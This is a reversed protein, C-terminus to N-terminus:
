GHSHSNEMKGWYERNILNQFLNGVPTVYNYEVLRKIKCSGVTFFSIGWPVVWWTCTNRWINGMKSNTKGTQRWTTVKESWKEAAEVFVPCGRSIHDKARTIEEHNPRWSKKPERGNLCPGASGISVASNQGVFGSHRFSPSDCKSLGERVKSVKRRRLLVCFIPGFGLSFLDPANLQDEWLYCTSNSFCPM